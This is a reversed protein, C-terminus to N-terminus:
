LLIVILEIKSKKFLSKVTLSESKGCNRCYFRYGLKQNKTSVEGVCNPSMKPELKPIFGIKQLFCTKITSEKVQLMIM